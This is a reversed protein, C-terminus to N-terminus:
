YLLLNGTRSMVHRNAASTGTQSLHVIHRLGSSMAVSNSMHRCVQPLNVIQQRDPRATDIYCCIEPERCLKGTQPLHEPKRCGSSIDCGPFFQSMYVRIAVSTRCILLRSYTLEPPPAQQLYLLLHGTQSVVQRNAASQATQPLWTAVQFVNRCITGYPSM